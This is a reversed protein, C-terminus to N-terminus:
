TTTTLKLRRSRDMEEEVVAMIGADFREPSFERARRVADASQFTPLWADLRALGDSLSAADPSDFFLGTKGDVVTELAGGRAYALVPRGSAMMELPVIGFDEEATFILARASAYARALAERSVRERFTINAGAGRRLSKEMEGAGIVTLPRGNQSFVEVALDPRKYPVLQGVWLYHDGVSAPDPQFADVQVPPYVVDYDRRYFKRVREGVFRSNTVFRDVRAASTVDWQRLLHVLFPMATRTVLGARERYLFYQDWVYRMPSHCYCIHVADPRTIAGKVPGAECSIVLDYATLDLSELALPMLPLYKKYWRRSNPLRSIFTTRINRSRISDSVAKADYVHTYIDADPFLTLLQELVQEGGRMTVLWYHLIAVKM